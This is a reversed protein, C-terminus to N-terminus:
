GTALVTGDEDHIEVGVFEDVTALHAVLRVLHNPDITVTGLKEILEGDTHTLDIKLGVYEGDHVGDPILILKM